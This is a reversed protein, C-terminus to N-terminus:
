GVSELYSEVCRTVVSLMVDNLTGRFADRVIKIDKLSVDASWSMEKAYSQLGKYTLDNRTIFPLMGLIFCYTDHIL